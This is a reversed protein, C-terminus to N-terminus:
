EKMTIDSVDSTWHVDPTRINPEMLKQGCCFLLPKGSRAVMM